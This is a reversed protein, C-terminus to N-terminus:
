RHRKPTTIRPREQNCVDVELSDTPAPGAWVYHALNYARSLKLDYKASGHPSNPLHYVFYPAYTCDECGGCESTTPLGVIEARGDGDLDALATLLFTTDHFVLFPYGSSDLAIIHIAEPGGAFAWGFMILMPRGGVGRLKPSLYFYPSRSLNDRVLSQIIFGRVEPATTSVFDGQDGPLLYDPRGPVQIRLRENEKSTSDAPTEVALTYSAAHARWRVHTVQVPRWLPAQAAQLQLLLIPLLVSM